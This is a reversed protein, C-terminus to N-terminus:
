LIQIRKELSGESCASWLFQGCTATNRELLDHFIIRRCAPQLWPVIRQLRSAIPSQCCCCNSFPLLLCSACNRPIHQRESSRATLAGGHLNVKCVKSFNNHGWFPMRGDNNNDKFCTAWVWHLSVAWYNYISLGCHIFAFLTRTSIFNHATLCVLKHTLM